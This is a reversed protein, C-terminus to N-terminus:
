FLSYDRYKDSIRGNPSLFRAFPREITEWMLKFTDWKTLLLKLVKHSYESGNTLFIIGVKERIIVARETPVKLIKKNESFVLWKRKGALALWEEDPKGGLHLKRLSTAKYGVLSLAKPVGTGIDEDCLLNM